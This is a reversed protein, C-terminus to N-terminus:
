SRVCTCVRITYCEEEKEQLTYDDIYEDDRSRIEYIFTLLSLDTLTNHIHTYRHLTNISTATTFETIM